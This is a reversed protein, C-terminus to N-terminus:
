IKDDQSPNSGPVEPDDTLKEILFRKYPPVGYFTETVGTLTKLAGKVLSFARKSRLCLAPCSPKWHYKLLHDVTLQERPDKNRPEASLTFNGLHPPAGSCLYCVPRRGLCGSDRCRFGQNGLGSAVGRQRVQGIIGPKPVGSATVALLRPVAAPDSGPGPRGTQGSDRGPGGRRPEDGNGQERMRRCPQRM